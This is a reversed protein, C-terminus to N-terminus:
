LHWANKREYLTSEFYNSKLQSNYRHGCIHTNSRVRINYKNFDYAPSKETFNM